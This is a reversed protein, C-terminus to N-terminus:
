DENTNQGRGACEDAGGVTLGNGRCLWTVRNQPSINDKTGALARVKAKANGREYDGAFTGHEGEGLRSLVVALIPVLNIEHRLPAHIASFGPTIQADKEV